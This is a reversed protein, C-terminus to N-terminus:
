SRRLQDCTTAGYSYLNAGVSSKTKSYRRQLAPRNDSRRERSRWPKTPCASAGDTKGVGRGHALRTPTLLALVYPRGQGDSQRFRSPFQGFAPPRGAGAPDTVYRKLYAGEERRAPPGNQDCRFVHKNRPWSLLRM